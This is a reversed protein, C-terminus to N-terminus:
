AALLLWAGVGAVVALAGLAALAPRAGRARGASQPRAPAGSRFVDGRREPREPKTPAAPRLRAPAAGGFEEALRRRGDATLKRTARVLQQVPERADLVRDRYRRTAPDFTSRLLVVLLRPDPHTRCLQEYASLADGLARHASDIYWTDKVVKGPLEVTSCVMIEYTTEAEDEARRASM